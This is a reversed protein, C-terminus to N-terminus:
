PIKMRAENRGIYYYINREFVLGAIIGGEETKGKQGQRRKEKGYQISYVGVLGM